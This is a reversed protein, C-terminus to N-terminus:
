ERNQQAEAKRPPALGGYSHGHSVRSFLRCGLVEWAVMWTYSRVRRRRMLWDVDKHMHM